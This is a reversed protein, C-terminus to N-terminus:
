DAFDLQDFCKREGGDRRDPAIAGDVAARLGPGVVARDLQRFGSVRQHKIQPGALSVVHILRDDFWWGSLVPRIEFSPTEVIEKNSM